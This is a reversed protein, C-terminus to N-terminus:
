IQRPDIAVVGGMGRSGWADWPWAWRHMVGAKEVHRYEWLDANTQARSAHKNAWMLPPVFPFCKVYQFCTELFRHTVWTLVFLLHMRYKVEKCVSVQINNTFICLLPCFIVQPMYGSAGHTYGTYCLTHVSWLTTLAQNQTVASWIYLSIVM